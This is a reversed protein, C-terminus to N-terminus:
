EADSRPAPEVPLDGFYVTVMKEKGNVSAREVECVEGVSGAFRSMQALDLNRPLAYAINPTITRALHFLSEGGGGVPIARVADFTDKALYRSFFSSSLHLLIFSFM